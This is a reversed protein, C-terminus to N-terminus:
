AGPQGARWADLAARVEGGPDLVALTSFYADERGQGRASDRAQLLEELGVRLRFVRLNAMGLQVGTRWDQPGHLALNSLHGLRPYDGGPLTSTLAALRRTIEIDAPDLRQALYLCEVAARPLHRTADYAFGCSGVRGAASLERAWLLCLQAPSKLIARGAANVATHRCWFQKALSWDDLFIAAMSGALNVELQDAQAGEALTQYLFALAADKHGHEVALLIRGALVEPDPPLLELAQALAQPAFASMGGRHLHLLCLAWAARRSQQDAVGAGLTAAFELLSQGRHRPLHERQVREWAARAMREAQEPRALHRDILAKLELVHAYTEIEKGREFLADQDPGVEQSLVLCGCSAAELLRFNVERLLSENPALRTDGYLDLMAAFSLDRALTAHYHRELFQALWKRVPRQETLRGVFSLVHPRQAFPKWPRDAGFMAMRGLTPRPREPREADTKEVPSFSGPPNKQVLTLHPTLVGDFLRCYYAQWFLNLHTDLSWFIKPCSFHHLGELIVRAGLNEQQFILEPTFASEALAARLDFTPTQPWFNVVEHGLERLAPGLLM